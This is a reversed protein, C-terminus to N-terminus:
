FVFLFHEGIKFHTTCKKHIAHIKSENTFTCIKLFQIQNFKKMFMNSIYANSNTLFYTNRRVAFIFYKKNVLTILTSKRRIGSEPQVQRFVKYIHIYYIERWKATKTRKKDTKILDKSNNKVSKITFKICKAM